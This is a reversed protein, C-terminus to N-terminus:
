VKGDDAIITQRIAEVDLERQSTKTLVAQAAATGAAQGIAMCTGMVRAGAMAEHTASICRGSILLNDINKPVLCGYRIDYWDGEPPHIAGMLQDKYETHMYCDKKPCESYCLHVGDKVFGRPCHIDIWWSGRGIGDEFKRGKIIDDGTLTAEGIIQRSQRV